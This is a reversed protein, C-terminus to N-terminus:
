LGPPDRIRSPREKGMRRSNRQQQHCLRRSSGMLQWLCIQQHAIAQHVLVTQRRAVHAHRRQFPDTPRPRVHTQRVTNGPCVAEWDRQMVPSMNLTFILRSRMEDRYFLSPSITLRDSAIFTEVIKVLQALLRERNGQFTHKM